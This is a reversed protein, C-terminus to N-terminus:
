GRPNRPHDLTRQNPPVLDQAKAMLPKAEEYQKRDIFVDAQRQYARSSKPNLKVATRALELARKPNNFKNRTMYAWSLMTYNGADKPDLQIAKELADVGQKFDDYPNSLRIPMVRADGYAAWCLSVNAGAGKVAKEITAAVEQVFQPEQQKSRLSNNSPKYWPQNVFVAADGFAGQLVSNRPQAKRRKDYEEVAYELLQSHWARMILLSHMRPTTKPSRIAGQLEALTIPQSGPDYRWVTSRSPKKGVQSTTLPQKVPKSQVTPVQVVLLCCLLANSGLVTTFRHISRM